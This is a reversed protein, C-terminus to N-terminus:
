NEGIDSPLTITLGSKFQLIDSMHNVEMIKWWFDPAGYVDYSVLDPRYEWGPTILTVRDITSSANVPLRKYIEFATKPLDGYYIVESKRYRSVRDIIDDKSVNIASQITTAL